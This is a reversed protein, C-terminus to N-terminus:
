DIDHTPPFRVNCYGSVADQESYPHHAANIHSKYSQIFTSSVVASDKQNFAADFSSGDAIDFSRALFRGTLVWELGGDGNERAVLDNCDIARGALGNKNDYTYDGRYMTSYRVIFEPGNPDLDGAQRQTVLGFEGRDMVDTPVGQAQASDHIFPSTLVALGAVASFKSRNQSTM